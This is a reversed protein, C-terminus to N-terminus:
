HISFFPFITTGLRCNTKINVIKTKCTLINQLDSPDVGLLSAVLQLQHINKIYCAEKSNGSNNKEFKINGMHLITALLQWIQYQLRKGIGFVKLVQKINEFVAAGQGQAFSAMKSGNLFSFHAPDSLHLQLREEQSANELLHYFIHFCAGRDLSGSIRSKELLYDILKMGALRGQENIQLESYKIFCSADKNFPTTSNGFASLITDLKLIKSQIRTKKSTEKSLDCINRILM